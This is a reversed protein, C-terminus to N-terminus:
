VIISERMAAVPRDDDLGHERRSEIYESGDPDLLAPPYSQETLDEALQELRLAESQAESLTTQETTYQAVQLDLRARAHEVDETHQTEMNAMAATAAAQQRQVVSHAARVQELEEKALQRSSVAVAEQQVAKTWATDAAQLVLEMQDRSKETQFRAIEAQELARSVGASREKQLASQMRAVTAVLEKRQTKSCNNLM